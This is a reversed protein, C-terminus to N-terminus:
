TEGGIGQICREEGVAMSCAGGIENENIQDDLFIQCPTCIM